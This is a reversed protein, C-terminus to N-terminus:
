PADVGHTRWTQATVRFANPVPRRLAAPLWAEPRKLLRIRLAPRAPAGLGLGRRIWNKAIEM